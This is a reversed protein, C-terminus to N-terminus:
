LYSKGFVKRFEEETWGQEQMAKLQGAIHLKEQTRSNRHAAQPGERHCRNGCLYVVLNYKESKGRNPGGFIHHEELADGNGNRGCLWCCRRNEDMKKKRAM